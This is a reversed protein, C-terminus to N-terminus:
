GPKGSTGKFPVAWESAKQEGGIPMGPTGDDNCTDSTSASEKSVIPMPPRLRVM